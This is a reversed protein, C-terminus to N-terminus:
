TNDVAQRHKSRRLQSARRRSEQRDMRSEIQAGTGSLAFHSTIGTEIEAQAYDMLDRPNSRYNKM